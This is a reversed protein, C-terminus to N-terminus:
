NVSYKIEGAHAIAKGVGPLDLCEIDWLLIQRKKLGGYLYLVEYERKRAGWNIHMSLQVHDAIFRKRVSIPGLHKRRCIENGNVDIHIRCVSNFLLLLGFSIPLASWVAVVGFAIWDFGSGKTIWLIWPLLGIGVLVLGVVFWIVGMHRTRPALIPQPHTDTAIDM